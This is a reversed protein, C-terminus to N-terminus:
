QGKELQQMNTKKKKAVLIDKQNTNNKIYHICRM